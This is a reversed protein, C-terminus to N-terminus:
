HDRREALEMRILPLLRWKIELTSIERLLLLLPRTCCILLRKKLTFLRREVNPNNYGVFVSDLYPLLMHGGSGQSLARDPGYSGIADYGYVVGKGNEDLGAIM